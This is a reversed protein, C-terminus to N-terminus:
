AAGRGLAAPSFNLVREKWGHCRLRVGLREDLQQLDEDIRLALERKLSPSLRPRDPMQWLRKARARLAGPILSLVRRAGPFGLLRDRLPGTRLRERSVNRAPLATGRLVSDGPAGLFLLIRAIEEEPFALLRELFVLLIRQSGYADFYPALQTAYLSYSVFRDHHRVAGELDSSVDRRTWEHIFQSVIREIPDRMMYILRPSSLVTTMRAVTHPHTPLKSYHTSSEGCLQSESAPAFLSTYWALGRAYMDDDSFFNPEKPQSMFFRPDEALREHLSSTGCKMAGIILFDPLRGRTHTLSPTAASM